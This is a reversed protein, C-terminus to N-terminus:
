LFAVMIDMSELDFDKNAVLVILMRLSEKAVTRTDSQSKEIEHFGRAM